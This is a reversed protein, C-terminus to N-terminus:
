EAVIFAGQFGRSEFEKQARITEELSNYKGVRVQYFVAGEHTEYTNIHAYSNLLSTKQKL